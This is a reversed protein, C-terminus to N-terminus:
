THPVESLPARQTAHRYLGSAMGMLGYLMMEWPRLHVVDRLPDRTKLLNLIRDAYIQIVRIEMALRLDRVQSALPDSQRLLRETGPIMDRICSLLAPSSQSQGLDEIRAGRAAFIEETIYVRNLNLYDKGCDQLHNNIQLAACLADSAVWTATSEGHVDLVFRGVPMASYTCYHIVEDWNAYRLKTIDLRFAKLVDCPHRPSMARKTLATRLRVAEPEEDGSGLLNAELRDLRQLKEQPALEAHDSIDDAVRVFEYFALILARHQPAIVRSAVPFNEDKHGKGSRLENASKM